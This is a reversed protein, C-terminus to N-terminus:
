HVNKTKRRHDTDDEEDEGYDFIDMPPNFNGDGECPNQFLYRGFTKVIIAIVVVLLACGFILGEVTFM